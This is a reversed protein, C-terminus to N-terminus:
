DKPTVPESSLARHYPLFITFTTGEGSKSEAQIKGGHNQIISYSISLGLGTGEGVNKTTFFPDFIKSLIEKPMGNGDDRIRIVLHDNQDTTEIWINGEEGIAQAANALINLFVQNMQGPNCGIIGKAKYAKHIKLQHKFQPMLIKISSDIGKHIDATEWKARDLHSFNRLNEVLEKIMQSGSITDGILGKIDPLIQQIQKIDTTRDSLSQIFHEIKGTYQQLQKINSYIFGIPNNLEHSIGAVLQGLSAMKESHILQTQTNRLEDYLKQLDRNKTDLEANTKELQQLYKERVEAETLKKIMETSKRLYENNEMAIAMQTGIFKFLDIDEKTLPINPAPEGLLLIGFLRENREIAFAHGAKFVQTDTKEASRDSLNFYRDRRLVEIIRSFNDASNLENLNLVDKRSSEMRIFKKQRSDLALVTSNDFDSYQRFNQIVTRFLQDDDHINVIQNSLNLLVERYRERIKRLRYYRESNFIIVAVFAITIMNIALLSSLLGLKKLATSAIIALLFFGALYGSLTAASWRYRRLGLRIFIITLLIFLLALLVQYWFVPLTILYLLQQWFLIVGRIFTPYEFIEYTRGPTLNAETLVKGSPFRVVVDLNALTDLGFHVVPDNFSLYGNGGNIFRSGLLHDPQGFFGARYIDVRAGIADRNSTIGHLNFKIFRETNTANQYFLSYVDKNAIFLDLDGDLDFDACAAGTSQGPPEDGFDTLREPKIGFPNLHLTNHGFNTVFIDLMGDLDFDAIVSGYSKENEDIHHLEFVWNTDGPVSRNIYVFNPGQFDTIYMDFRGDRDLDGFSVCSTNLSKSLIEIPLNMPQFTGDGRNRYILDKNGWNTVVLDQDGDNDLDCFGASRSMGHYELGGATTFEGFNGWGSNLLLRNNYHEDTIFIDIQGNNDVDACIVGNADIPPFIEMQETINTFRLNGDNRYLATSIGWGAILIDGDWDNDIDVIATGFKLDFTTIGLDIKYVGKPRPNGALGAIETADKFPRYAGNNILLKNDGIYRIIYLDPLQDGNVDRFAVGYGDSIDPIYSRSMRERFIRDIPAQGFVSGALMGLTILFIAWSTM